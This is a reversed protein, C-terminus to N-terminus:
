NQGTSQGMNTRFFFRPILTVVLLVGHPHFASMLYTNTKNGGIISIVVTCVIFRTVIIWTFYNVFM